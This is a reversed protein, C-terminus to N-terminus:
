QRFYIYFDKQPLFNKKAWYYINNHSPHKISDAIYSLSDVKINDPVFLSYNATELPKGWNRTTQLIYEAMNGKLQQRYHIKIKRFGYGEMLLPFSIGSNESMNFFSIEKKETSDYVSISDIDGLEKRVPFPYFIIQKIKVSDSNSFYYAGDVTFYKTELSFKLDEKYFSLKQSYLSNCSFLIFVLFSFLYSRM